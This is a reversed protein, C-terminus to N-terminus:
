RVRVRIVRSVGTAYPYDGAARVRVRMEYIAPGARRFMYRTAFRGTRSARVTRFTIWPEGPSRAQLEVVKGGRPVPRGVLRGRLHVSRGRAAVHPAVSLKVGARVKLRLTREAAAVTDNAHSRYRLLLTRSSADRPLILTFRGDGRTRAGGKDLPAGPRGDVATIMEIRANRVGAGTADTLRGRIVSRAGYRATLTARPTRAWRAVLQAADAANDGNAGGREAASSGPGITRAPAVITKRAAYVTRLNGAADSIRLAVDHDGAPLASADVAVVADVSTLCPRPYKFVRGGTTTDVCRGGWDDITRTLVPAGDVDLTAQYVGGGDDTAPFAFTQTGQWTPSTVASGTAPGGTPPLEDAVTMESSIITATAHIQNPQCDPNGTPGDCAILLDAWRDHVGVRSAVTTGVTGVGEHSALLGSDSGWVQIAGENESNFPRAYGSYTFRFGALYTDPPATFRWSVITAVPFSWQGGISSILRPSSSGCQDSADRGPGVGSASWGGSADNAPTSRGVQDRCSLVTYTGASAPSASLASAVAATLILLRSIRM